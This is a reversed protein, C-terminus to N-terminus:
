SYVSLPFDLSLEIFSDLTSCYGDLFWSLEGENGPM